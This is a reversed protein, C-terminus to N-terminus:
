IPKNGGKGPEKLTKKGDVDLHLAKLQLHGLHHLAIFHVVRPQTEKHM